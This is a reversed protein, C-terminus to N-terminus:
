WGERQKLMEINPINEFPKLEAMNEEKRMETSLQWWLVIKLISFIVSVTQVFMEM